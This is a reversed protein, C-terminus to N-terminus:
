RGRGTLRRRQSDVSFDVATAASVQTLLLRTPSFIAMPTGNTLLAAILDNIAVLIAGVTITNVTNGTVDGVPLGSFYKRGRTSRGALATRLSICIAVNGPEGDEVIGGAAPPTIALTAEGSVAGNLNHVFIERLDIDQSLSAYINAYGTQFTAAVDAAVTPDFPDPGIVHWVNEILQGFLTGRTEVQYATPFIPSPM